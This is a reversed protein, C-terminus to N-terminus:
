RPRRIAGYAFPRGTDPGLRATAAKGAGGARARSREACGRPLKAPARVRNPQSPRHAPARDVTATCSPINMAPTAVRPQQGGFVRKGLRDGAQRYARERGGHGAAHQFELRVRARGAVCCPWPAPSRACRSQSAPRGPVLRARPSPDPQESSRRISVAYRALTFAGVSITSAPLSAAEHGRRLRRLPRTRPCLPQLDANGRM